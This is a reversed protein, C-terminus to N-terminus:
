ESANEEGTQLLNVHGSSANVSVLFTSSQSYAEKKCCWKILVSKAFDYDYLCQMHLIRFEYELHFFM